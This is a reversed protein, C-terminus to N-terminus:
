ACEKRKGLEDHLLAYLQLLLGHLGETLFLVRLFVSKLCFDPFVLLLDFLVGLRDHAELFSELFHSLVMFFYFSLTCGQLVTVWTQAFPFRPFGPM